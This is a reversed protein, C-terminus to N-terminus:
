RCETDSLRTTGGLPVAELSFGHWILGNTAPAGESDVDSFRLRLSALPLKRTPAEWRRHFPGAASFTSPEWVATEPYSEGSDYSASLNLTSPAAITGLIVVSQVEGYGLPGFPRIDGTEVLAPAYASLGSIPLDRGNTATQTAVEGSGAVGIVATTEWAGLAELAAPSYVATTFAGIGQQDVIDYQYYILRTDTPNDDDDAVLLEVRNHSVRDIVGKVIPCSTLEDRVRVGISIPTQEGRQMWYIGTGAKDNGTFFLGDQTAVAGRPDTCNATATLFMPTPFEGQGTNTPGDGYSAIWIGREALAYLKGDQSLLAHIRGSGPIPVLLAGSHAPAQGSAFTQTCWLTDPREAMVGWVRNAFTTIVVSAPAVNYPLIGGGGGADQVLIEGLDADAVVDTWAVPNRNTANNAVNPPFTPSNVRFFPPLGGKDTRYAVIKVPSAQDYHNTLNRDRHQKRTAHLVPLSWAISATDSAYGAASLDISVPLSPASQQRNGYADCWEYVFVYQYLGQEISGGTTSPTADALAGGPFSYFGMEAFRSSDFLLPTGGALVVSELAYTHLYRDSGRARFRYTAVNQGGVVGGGTLNKPASVYFEDATSGQAVSYLFPSDGAAVEEAVGNAVSLVPYPLNAGGRGWDLLLLHTQGTASFRAISFVTDSALTDRYFRSGICYNAFPAWADSGGLAANFRRSYVHGIPNQPDNTDVASTAALWETSSCIEVSVQKTPGLFETSDDVSLIATQSLAQTLSVLCTITTTSNAIAVIGRVGDVGSSICISTPAVLDPAAAAGWDYPGAVPALVGATATYSRVMVSSTSRYVIAVRDAAGAVTADFLPVLSEADSLLVVPAAVPGLTSASLDFAQYVITTASAKAYLVYVYTGIVLTRHPVTGDVSIEDLLQSSWARAGTSVSICTAFLFYASSLTDRQIWTIFLWDGVVATQTSYVRGGTDSGSYTVNQLSAAVNCRVGATGSEAVNDQAAFHTYVNEDTCILREGMPGTVLRRVNGLYTYEKSHQTTGISVFGRRHQLRGRKDFEVNQARILCSPAMLDRELDQRIGQEFIFDIVKVSPNAM